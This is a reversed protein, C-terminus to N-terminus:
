GREAAAGPLPRQIFADIWSIFLPKASILFILRINRNMRKEKKGIRTNVIAYISRKLVQNGIM